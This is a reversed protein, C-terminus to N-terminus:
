VEGAGGCIGQRIEWRVNSHVFNMVACLCSSHIAGICCHPQAKAVSSFGLSFVVQRFSYLNEGKNSREQARHKLATIM